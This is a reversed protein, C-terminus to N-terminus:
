RSNEATMVEPLILEGAVRQREQLELELIKPGMVSTVNLDGGAYSCSDGMTPIHDLM